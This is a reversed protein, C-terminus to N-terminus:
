SFLSPRLHSRLLAYPLCRASAAGLALPRHEAAYLWAAVHLEAVVDAGDLSPDVSLLLLLVVEADDVQVSQGHELVRRLQPALRTRQGRHQEGRPKVRVLASNEHLAVHRRVSLGAPQEVADRGDAPQLSHRLELCLCLVLLAYGGPEEVVGDEHRAVDQEVIGMLHWDALVLPLVNLKRTVDGLTEVVDVAVRKHHGISDNGFDAPTDHPEVVGRHLHGLAIRVDPAVRDAHYVVGLLDLPREFACHGVVPVLDPERVRRLLRPDVVQQADVLHYGAHVLRRHLGFERRRTAVAVQLATDRFDDDGRYRGDTLSVLGEHLVHPREVPQELEAGLARLSHGTGLQVRYLLAHPQDKGLLYSYM